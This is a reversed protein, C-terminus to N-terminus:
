SRTRQKTTCHLSLPVTAHQHSCNPISLLAQTFLPPQQLSHFYIEQYLLRQSVTEILVTHHQVQIRQYTTHKMHLLKLTKYPQSLIYELLLM